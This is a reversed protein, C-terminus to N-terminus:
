RYIKRRNLERQYEEANRQHEANTRAFRHKGSGDASACMFLYKHSAADLVADIAVISPIRIPGPPLGLHKYTNYPSEVEQDRKLIRRITFDGLAFKLTPCAQLPMKLRLRNLYIGAIIPLEDRRNTEEEIISALTSVEVRTLGLSDAKHEREPTWFKDYERKMRQMWEAASTNWRFQYTNPVFLAPITQQTFGYQAVIEPDTMARLLSASDTELYHSVVAALQPLTRLNNFTLNIYEQTGSRLRNILDRATMGHEIRYRGPKVHSPYNMLKAVTSFLAEDALWSHLQLLQCVDDYTAGTPIYLLETQAGHLDVVPRQLIRLAAVCGAVIFASAILFIAIRLKSVTLRKRKSTINM